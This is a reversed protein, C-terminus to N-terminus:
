LSRFAFLDKGEAVVLFDYFCGTMSEGAILCRSSVAPNM